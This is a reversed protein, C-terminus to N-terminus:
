GLIDTSVAEQENNETKNRYTLIADCHQEINCIHYYQCRHEIGINLVYARLAKVIHEIFVFTITPKLIFIFM